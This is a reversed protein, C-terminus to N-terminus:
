QPLYETYSYDNYPTSGNIVSILRVYVKAGKTPLTATYSTGTVLINLVDHTGPTTGIWLYYGTAGTAPTWSFTTSAATLTSGSRLSVGWDRQPNAAKGVFVCAVLPIAIAAAKGDLLPSYLGGILVISPM